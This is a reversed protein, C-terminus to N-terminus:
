MAEVSLFFQTFLFNLWIIFGLQVDKSTYKRHERISWKRYRGTKEFHAVNQFVNFVFSDKDVLNLYVDKNFRGRM